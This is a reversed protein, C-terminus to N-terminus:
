KSPKRYLKQHNDTIDVKTSILILHYQNQLIDQGKVLLIEFYRWIYALKLTKFHKLLNKLVWFNTVNVTMISRKQRNVTLKKVRNLGEWTGLQLSSLRSARQNASHLLTCEADNQLALNAPREIRMVLRVFAEAIFKHKENRTQQYTFLPIFAFATNQPACIKMLFRNHEKM